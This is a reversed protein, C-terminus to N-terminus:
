RKRGQKAFEKEAKKVTRFMNFTVLVAYGVGVLALIIYYIMNETKGQRMYDLMQYVSLSVLIISLIYGFIVRSGINMSRVVMKKDQKDPLATKNAM